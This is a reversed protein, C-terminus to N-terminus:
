EKLEALRNKIVTQKSERNLSFTRSENDIFKFLILSKEYLEIIDDTKGRSGKYVKNGRNGKNAMNGTCGNNGRSGKDGKNGKGGETYKLEAEAYFLEALVELHNNTFNHERILKETIKNRPIKHFYSADEKLLNHYARNLSDYAQKFDKKRIYGFIAAILEGFMEIMRLIYDKEYM